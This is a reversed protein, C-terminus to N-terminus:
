SIQKFFRIKINKVGFPVFNYKDTWNKEDLFSEPGVAYLEGAKHHHPGLLNRLSNVLRLEITNEGPKLYKTINIQHPHLFIHGALKDNVIVETVIANLDDLILIAKDPIKDIKISSTISITGAYFPYGQLVFDGPKLNEPTDTIIFDENNINKVAFDGVIYINELETDFDTKGKLVITNLGNKILGDIKIKMFTTDIWCGEGSYRVEKGNVEITYKEPTELVLYIDRKKERKFDVKFEFKLEFLNGYGAELAKQHAKLVPVREDENLDSGVIKAKCYDLLLANYDLAKCKWNETLNVDYLTEYELKKEKVDMKRGPYLMLLLSGAQPFEKKLIIYEGSKEIYPTDVDGTLPNWEEVYFEGRIKIVAKYSNKNDTNAIFLIYSDDKKRLHYWLPDINKGEGDEIAVFRQYDKFASLIGHRDLEIVTVKSLFDKLEKSEKGDILTPLPKIAIVKGGEEVFRKLLNFTSSALTLSPPIIVISYKCRGIVIKEGEVKGYKEILIEDGLEYDIKLDLLEKILWLFKRDLEKVKATNYPTYLAWASGIPHLLLVDVIRQGQSLVYSLRAFYDEILRNYKWWPQQWFLNPPYDRKRKGRMTYLELHHNLLNVGLVYLWDGIWKRDEFSLNQGSTGYAECLVRQRGLQNAVSAVQKVTLNYEIHRGLHDIGPVHQYEYHPMAAGIHTLQSILFDEYLYHGTSLLSHKDCWEFIQKSFSEIFLETVTRWFDYRVKHYDGVDFFLSPLHELINYGHKEKFIEPLKETWPLFAPPYKPGRKFTITPFGTASFNPEDTFIGPVSKGIYKKLRNYYEEYTTKIFASVAKPNLMDVYSFNSFWPQGIPAYALVFYLYIKGKEEKEGEGVPELNVVKEGQLDGKFIKIADVVKDLREYMTLMLAKPRYERGLAPVKGGAFGSPWRDEDYLWAFMGLKDAEVAAREIIDMWESSLYPTILGERAHLFFGGLGGKKMEHIQRVIEEECLKDNLSWFPVGRYESPPNKFLDKNLM